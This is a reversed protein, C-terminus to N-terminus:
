QQAPLSFRHITFMDKSRSLWKYEEDLLDLHGQEIRSLKNFMSKGNLDSTNEALRTYYSTAEREAEIAARLIEMEPADPKLDGRAESSPPFETCEVPNSIDGYACWGGESLWKGSGKIEQWQKELIRVHGEEESALWSFTKKGAANTSRAAADSYFRYAEKEREIALSLADLENM